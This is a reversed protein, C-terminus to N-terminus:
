ASRGGKDFTRLAEAQELQERMEPDSGGSWYAVKLRAVERELAARRERQPDRVSAADCLFVATTMM